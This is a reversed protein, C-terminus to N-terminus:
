KPYGAADLEKGWSSADFGDLARNGILLTPAALERKGLQRKYADVEEQTKLQKESFPAKRKALYDRAQQCAEGCSEGVLLQLPFREAAKRAEFPLKEQEIRSDYLRRPQADVEVPPADSYSVKGNKDTWRYIEAQAGLSSCLAALGLILCLTKM